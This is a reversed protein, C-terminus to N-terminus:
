SENKMEEKQAELAILATRINQFGMDLHGRLAAAAKDPQRSMLGEVIDQHQELTGDRNVRQRSSIFRARWLRSNYTKHTELLSQNNSAAVIKQHFHMDKQFVMYLGIALLCIQFWPFPQKGFYKQYTKIIQHKGAVFPFRTAKLLQLALMWISIDKLTKKFAGIKNSVDYLNNTTPQKKVAFPVTNPKTHLM